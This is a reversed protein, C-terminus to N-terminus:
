SMSQSSLRTRTTGPVSSYAIVSGAPRLASALLSPESPICVDSSALDALLVAFNESATCDEDSVPVCVTDPGLLVKFDALVNAVVLLDWVYLPELDFPTLQLSLWFLLDKEEVQFNRDEELEM